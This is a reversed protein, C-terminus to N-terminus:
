RGFPKLPPPLGFAQRLPLRLYRADRTRRAAGGSWERRVCRGFAGGKLLPASPLGGWHGPCHICMPLKEGAEPPPSKVASFDGFRAPPQPGRDGTPGRPTCGLSRCRGPRQAGGPQGTGYQRGRGPKACALLIPNGNRSRLAERLGCWSGRFLPLVNCVATKTCSKGTKATPAAILRGHGAVDARRRDVCRGRSAAERCPRAICARVPQAFVVAQRPLRRQRLIGRGPVPPQYGGRRVRRRGM